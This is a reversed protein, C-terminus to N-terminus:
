HLYLYPSLLWSPKPLTPSVLGTACVYFNWPVDLRAFPVSPAEEWIHSLTWLFAAKWGRTRWNTCMVLSAGERSCFGASARTWTSWGELKDPDRQLAERDELSDFAGGLKTNDMFIGLIGELRPDWDILFLNFLVPGLIVVRSELILWLSLVSKMDMVDMGSTSPFLLIFLREMIVVEAWWWCVQWLVFM